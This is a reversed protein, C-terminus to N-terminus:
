ERPLFGVSFVSTVFVLICIKKTTKTIKTTGLEPDKQDSVLCRTGFNIVGARTGGSNRILRLEDGRNM